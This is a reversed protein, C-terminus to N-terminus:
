LKEIYKVKINIGQEDIECPMPDCSFADDEILEKAEGLTEAEIIVEYIKIVTHEFVVKFKGM